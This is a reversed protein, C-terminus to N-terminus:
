PIDPNTYTHSPERSVLPLSWSAAPSAPCSATPGAQYLLSYYTDETNRECRWPTMINYWLVTEEGKLSCRSMDVTDRRARPRHAPHASSGWFALSSAAVLPAFESTHPSGLPLPPLPRTGAWVSVLCLDTCHHHCSSTQRFLTDGINCMNLYFIGQM